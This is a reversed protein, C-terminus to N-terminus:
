VVTLQCDVQHWSSNPCKSYFYQYFTYYGTGKRWSSVNLYPLSVHSCTYLFQLQLYTPYMNFKNRFIKTGQQIFLYIFAPEVRLYRNLETWDSLPTQSKTVGHVAARWAKSDMVLEWFEGLCMDMSDTIGDLWRMRWQGGRKKGEVKGLMLNKEFSDTRRM